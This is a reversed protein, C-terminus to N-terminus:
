IEDEEVFETETSSDVETGEDPLDVLEEPETEFALGTDVGKPNLFNRFEATAVHAEELTIREYQYLDRIIKRIRSRM